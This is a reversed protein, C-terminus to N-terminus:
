EERVLKAAYFGDTGHEPPWTRLDGREDLFPRVVDDATEEPTARRFRPHRELFREVVQENEVPGLTCTSYVLRGGPRVCRAAAELIEEQLRASRELHREKRRWRIDPHRQITGLGTCPVDVLVADAPNAALWDSLEPRLEHPKVSGIGLRECQIAVQALRGGDTDLALISARDGTLEALHTTKGGPAACWDAIKEGPRPEVFRAILQAAGDQVTALGETFWAAEGIDGVMGALAVAEPTPEGVREVRLGEAELRKALQEASTRLLNARLMIEPTSNNWELLREVEDEPYHKLLYRVLWPPHSYFRPWEAPNAPREPLLAKGREAIKRLVANVLAAHGRNTWRLALDVAENVAAHAPVRDTFLVQYAGLRLIDRVIPPTRRWPKRTLSELISDLLSRRRLVGLSLETALRADAGRVRGRRLLEHLLRSADTEPNRFNFLVALAIERPNSTTLDAPIEKM